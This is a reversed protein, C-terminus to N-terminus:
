AQKRQLSMMPSLINDLTEAALEDATRIAHSYIDATTSTQAHGARYSVTRLPVGAAILLTINTHRLSHVTIQPLDTKIIFKHFQSTITCPHLPEGNYRTFVRDDDKWELTRLRQENQWRRHDELLPFAQMPLKITRRSTESKTNSDYIGKGPVYQLSRSIKVLKKEFDIDHWKLGCLEGRRLGSLLYMKIMTQFQPPENELYRLLSAAQKEDLYKAEHRPVRPALVRKAPNEPIVQWYVATQLITSILRHHEKLAKQSLGKNPATEEFAEAMKVGVYKCIKEATTRSVPKKTLANAGTNRSIGSERTVQAKTMGKAKMSEFLIDKATFSINKKETGNALLTYFGAIHSPQLKKMRINGLAPLIRKLLCEYGSITTPQLNHLAYDKKWRDVFQSFTISGDAVRGSEVSQEFNVKVKELEKKIQAETMGVEPTWTMTERVQRGSMDYGGSVMIFFSKGRKIVSAM